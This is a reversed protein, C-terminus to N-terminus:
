KELYEIANKLRTIDDGFYGIASNCPNCLLGRVEGTDHDHDVCFKSKGWAPPGKCIFCVGDQEELIDYYDEQTIGYERRLRLDETSLGSSLPNVWNKCQDRPKLGRRLDGSTRSHIEGCDPCELLYVVQGSKQKGDTGVVKGLPGDYNKYSNNGM